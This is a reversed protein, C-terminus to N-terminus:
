LTSLQLHSVTRCLTGNKLNLHFCNLIFSYTLYQITLAFATTLSSQGPLCYNYKKFDLLLLTGSEVVILFGGNGWSSSAEIM